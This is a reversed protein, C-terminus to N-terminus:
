KKYTKLKLFEKNFPPAIYMYTSRHFLGIAIIIDDKHEAFANKFISDYKLIAKRIPYSYILNSNSFLGLVSEFAFLFLAKSKLYLGPSKDVFYQVNTEKAEKNDFKTPFPAIIKVNFKRKLATYLNLTTPSYALHHNPFFIIVNRNM